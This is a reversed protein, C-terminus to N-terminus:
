KEELYLHQGRLFGMKVELFFDNLNIQGRDKLGDEIRLDVLHM